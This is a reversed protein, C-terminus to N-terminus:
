LSSPVLRPYRTEDYLKGTEKNFPIRYLATPPAIRFNAPKLYVSEEDVGLVSGRPKDHEFYRGGGPAIMPRLTGDPQAECAIYPRYVFFSGDCEEGIKSTERFSSEDPEDHPSGMKLQSLAMIKVKHTMAFSKLNRAFNGIPVRLEESRVEGYDFRHLHDLVFWRAGAAVYRAMARLCMEPTLAARDNITLNGNQLRALAEGWARQQESTLTRRYYSTVPLGTHMAALNVWQELSSMELSFLVGPELTAWHDYINRAATSKGAKQRGGIIFLNGPRCPLIERDLKQIGWTLGSKAAATDSYYDVVEVLQKKRDDFTRDNQVSAQLAVMREEVRKEIKATPKGLSLALAAGEIIQKFREAYSWAKFAEALEEAGIEFEVTTIDHVVLTDYLAVLEPSGDTRLRVGVSVPDSAKSTAVLSALLTFLSRATPDIFDAPILQDVLVAGAEPDFLIRSLVATELDGPM